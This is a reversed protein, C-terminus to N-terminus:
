ILDLISKSYFFVLLFLFSLDILSFKFKGINLGLRSFFSQIQDNEDGSSYLHSGDSSLAQLLQLFGTLREVNPEDDTEKENEDNEKSKEQNESLQFKTEKENLKSLNKSELDTSSSDSDSQKM